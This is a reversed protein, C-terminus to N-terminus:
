QHRVDRPIKLLWVWVFLASRKEDLRRLLLCSTHLMNYSPSPLCRSLLFAVILFSLFAFISKM